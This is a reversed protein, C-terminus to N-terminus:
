LEILVSEGKSNDKCTWQWNEKLIIKGTDLVDPISHCKGTMIEGKLNIHHYVFEFYMDDIIKGILNGKIIEGGQYSASIIDDSQEYSFITEGSVEGNETNSQISFKRNNLDIKKKM